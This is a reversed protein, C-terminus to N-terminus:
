ASLQYKQEFRNIENEYHKILLSLVYYQERTTRRLSEKIKKTKNLEEYLKELKEMIQM